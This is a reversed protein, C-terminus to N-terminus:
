EEIIGNHVVSESEKIKISKVIGENFRYLAICGILMNIGVMSEAM